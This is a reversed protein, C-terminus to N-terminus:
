LPLNSSRRAPPVLMRASEGPSAVRQAHAPAAGDLWRNKKQFWAQVDAPPMVQHLLVAAHYAGALRLLVDPSASDEGSVLRDLAETTLSAMYVVLDTGLLEQLGTILQTPTLLAVIVVAAAGDDDLWEMPTLGDLDPHPAHLLAVRESHSMSAPLAAVVADLGRPTRIPLPDGKRFPYERAVSHGTM